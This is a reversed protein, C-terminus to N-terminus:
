EAKQLSKLYAVVNLRDKLKKFKMVMKSKAKKDDLYDRMFQKPNELYAILNEETWMLGKEGATVYSKSYKFGPVTGSQQDVIQYLSPGVKKKGEELSHCAKCRKWIREGKKPDGEEAAGAAGAGLMLAMSAAMVIKATKTGLM